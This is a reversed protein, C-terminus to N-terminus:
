EDIVANVEINANAQVNWLVISSSIPVILGRPFTWIIGNGIAAPYSWQRHFWVPITPNVSWSVTASSVCAPAAPEDRQFPALGSNTGLTAPRGLAIAGAVGASATVLFLELLTARATSATILQWGPNGSAVTQTRIFLSAIAM